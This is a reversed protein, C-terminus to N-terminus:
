LRRSRFSIQAMTVPNTSIWPIRICSITRKLTIRFSIYQIVGIRLSFVPADNRNPDPGNHFCTNNYIKNYVEDFHYGDSLSVTLGWADNFFVYNKRIINYPTDVSVGSSGTLTAPDGSYGFRNGEVLNRGNSSDNGSLYLCRDGYLAAGRDGSGLCWNEGHFYNNRIVNNGSLIGMIHHGGHYLVNNEILNHSSIDPPALNSESGIDFNSDSECNMFYGNDSFSCHHIWNYQSSTHIRSSAWSAPQGNTLHPKYFSGYCITNYNSSSELHVFYDLNTANIGQVVIYSMGILRVAYGGAGGNTITVVDTGYNRYTIPSLSTGTRSPYVTNTYSSTTPYNGAKILVTDGAQLTSNAKGITKWPSAETGSNSDSATSNNTDVYYTMASASTGILGLLGIAVAAWLGIQRMQMPRKRQSSPALLFWSCETATQEPYTRMKVGKLTGAFRNITLTKTAKARFLFPFHPLVM